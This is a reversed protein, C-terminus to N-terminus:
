ISAKTEVNIEKQHLMSESISLFSLVEQSERGKTLRESESVGKRPSCLPHGDALLVEPSEHSECMLM